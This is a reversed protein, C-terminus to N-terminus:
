FRADNAAPRCVRVLPGTKAPQGNTVARDGGDFMKAGALSVGDAGGLWGM